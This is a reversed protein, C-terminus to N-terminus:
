LELLSAPAVVPTEARLEVEKAEVFDRRAPREPVRLSHHDPIHELIQAPALVGLTTVALHLRRQDELFAEPLGRAVPFLEPVVHEEELLLRTVLLEEPQLRHVARPVAEDIRRTRPAVALQGDPERLGARQVPVLGGSRQVAEESHPVDRLVVAM